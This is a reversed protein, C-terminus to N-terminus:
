AVHDWIDDQPEYGILRRTSEIDWPMTRNASMGNVIIGPQPWPAADALLAREMVATFDRNSLWMNRFWRLDRENEPGTSVDERPLGSTNITDPRNEGPQCWGIRVCVSTLTGKSRHAEALCAREGMLKSAAYAFGQIMERGNFWRTGPGPPLSTTLTGPTLTEALPADKYQGMVHNSSAFVIRQLGARSVAALLALTMDFSACADSWPADPYPNQAAFHVAADVGALAEHWQVDFPDALNGAAWQVREVHAASPPTSRDLAVIRECWDQALLHAILKQGLNGGAGTILVSRVPRSSTM